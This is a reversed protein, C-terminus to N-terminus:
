RCNASAVSSTAVTMSLYRSTHLAVLSWRGLHARGLLEHEFRCGRELLMCGVIYEDDAGVQLTDVILQCMAAVGDIAVPNEAEDGDASADLNMTGVTGVGGFQAPAEAIADHLRCPASLAVRLIM